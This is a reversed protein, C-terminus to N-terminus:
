RYIRSLVQKKQLMFTHQINTKSTTAIIINFFFVYLWLHNQLKTIPKLLEVSCSVRAFFIGPAGLILVQREPHCRFLDRVWAIKNDYDLGDRSIFAENISELSHSWQWHLKLMNWSGQLHQFAFIKIKVLPQAFWPLFYGLTELSSITKTPSIISM